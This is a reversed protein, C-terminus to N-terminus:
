KAGGARGIRGKLNQKGARIGGGKQLMDKGGHLNDPSIHYSTSAALLMELILWIILLYLLFDSINIGSGTDDSLYFETARYYEYPIEKLFEALEEGSIRHINGEKWDVNVALPVLDTQNGRPLLRAQYIGAMETFPGPALFEGSTQQIGQVVALKEGTPSIFELQPMYDEPNISYQLADGVTMPPTEKQSSLRAQLQLATVVYSPNGRAWNNWESSATTLFIVIRGEGFRRELVLPANNRLSAIVQTDQYDRRTDATETIEPNEGQIETEQAVNEEQPFIAAAGLDEQPILRELSEDELQFYKQINVTSLLGSDRGEFIRFISHRSVRLDPIKQLYDVPLEVTQRLKVPFFGEGDRHWSLAAAPDTLPGLFMAVGGGNKIYEELSTVAQRDLKGVNLLYIVSYNSLPNTSLFRPLELRPAIGTNVNGGPALAMMLTKADKAQADGDIILVSEQSPFDVICSRINDALITDSDLKAHIIHKGATPIRVIFQERVTEGPPIETITVAILNNGSRSSTKSSPNESDAASSASKTNEDSNEPNESTNGSSNGTSTNEPTRTDSSSREDSTTAAAPFDTSPHIVVNKAASTGFNTVEVHMVLPVGAALTGEAPYLKTIALNPHETEVCDIFKLTIGSKEMETLLTKIDQNQEWQHKRFDTVLYLIRKEDATPPALHEVARLASLPNDAFDSATLPTLVGELRQQFNNDVPESLMDPTLKGFSTIQSDETQKDESNESPIKNESHMDASTKETAPSTPDTNGATDASVGTGDSPADKLANLVNQEKARAQSFRLLTFNQMQNQKAAEQGLQLVVDKATHFASHNGQRDQMSFSDDLLVIHHIRNGGLLIGGPRSKLIPQAAIFIIMAVALMRMLLLLIEKMRVWTRHRRFGALLFEMAGWRIRRHRLLNILHILLPVLVLPLGWLLLPHLFM